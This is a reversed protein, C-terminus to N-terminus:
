SQPIEKKEKKKEPRYDGDYTRHYVLLRMGSALGSRACVMLATKKDPSRWGLFHGHSRRETDNDEDKLVADIPSKMYSFMEHSAEQVCIIQCPTTKLDRQMHDQLDRDGWENGWNASIIGYRGGNAYKADSDKKEDGDGHTVWEGDTVHSKSASWTPKILMAIKEGEDCEENIVDPDGVMCSANTPAFSPPAFTSAANNESLVSLGDM